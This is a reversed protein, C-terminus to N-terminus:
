QGLVQAGPGLLISMYVSGECSLFFNIIEPLNQIKRQFNNSLGGPSSGQARGTMKLARQLDKNRNVGSTLPGDWCVPISPCIHIAVKVLEYCGMRGSFGPFFYVHFISSKNYAVTM